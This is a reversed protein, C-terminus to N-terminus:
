CKLANYIIKDLSSVLDEAIEVEDHNSDSSSLFEYLGEYVVNLQEQNMQLEVIDNGKFYDNITSKRM